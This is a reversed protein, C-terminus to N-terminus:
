NVPVGNVEPVSFELIEMGESERYAVGKLGNLPLSSDRRVKDELSRKCEGPAPPGKMSELFVSAIM